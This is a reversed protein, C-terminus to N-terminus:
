ERPHNMSRYLDEIPIESESNRHHLHEWLKQICTLSDEMSM